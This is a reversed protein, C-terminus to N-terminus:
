SVSRYHLEPIEHKLHQPYIGFPHYFQTWSLPQLTQPVPQDAKGKWVASLSCLHCCLCLGDCHGSCFRLCQLCIGSNRQCGPHYLEDSESGYGPHESREQRISQPLFSFRRLKGDAMGAWDSSICDSG